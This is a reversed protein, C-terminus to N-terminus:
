DDLEPLGLLSIGSASTLHLSLAAAGVESRGVCRCTQIVAVTWAGVGVTYCGQSMAPILVGVLSPVLLCLSLCTETIPLSQGQSNNRCSLIPPTNLM